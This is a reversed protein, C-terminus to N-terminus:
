NAGPAGFLPYDGSKPKIVSAYPKDASNNTVIRDYYHAYGYDNCCTAADLASVVLKPGFIKFIREYGAVDGPPPIASMDGDGLENTDGSVIANVGKLESPSKAGTVKQVDAYFSDIFRWHEKICSALRGADGGYGFCHPAHMVVYLIKLKPNAVNEFYAINYGRGPDWCHNAHFDDSLPNSGNKVLAWDSSYGIQVGEFYKRKKQDYGVCGGKVTNWGAVGFQTNATFADGLAPASAQVLTIFSVKAPASADNIKGALLALQLNLSPGKDDWGMEGSASKQGGKANYQIVGIKVDDAAAAGVGVLAAALSLAIRRAANHLFLRM